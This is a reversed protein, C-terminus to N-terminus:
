KALALDEGMISKWELNISFAMPDNAFKVLLKGLAMAGDKSLHFNAGGQGITSVCIRPWGDDGTIERVVLGGGNKEGTHVVKADYVNRIEEERKAAITPESKDSVKEAAKKKM